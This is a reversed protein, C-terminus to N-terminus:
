GTANQESRPRRVFLLPVRAQAGTIGRLTRWWLFIGIYTQGGKFRVKICYFQLKCPYVNNKKNKKEPFCLNHTSTLVAWRPPEISYGCDSKLLFIFLILEKIQFSQLHFNRYIQFPMCKTIALKTWVWFHSTGICLRLILLHWSWTVLVPNCTM